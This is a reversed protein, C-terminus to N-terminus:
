DVFIEVREGEAEDVMEMVKGEAGSRVASLIEELDIDIDRPTFRAGMNMGVTALGWPLTIDVKQQGTALDTVRVRMRYPSSRADPPVPLTKAEAARELVDLLEVAEAASVQGAEVMKLVQLREEATAM